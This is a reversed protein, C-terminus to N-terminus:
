DSARPQPRLETLDVGMGSLIAARSFGPGFPQPPTAGTIIFHLASVIREAARGDGYPNAASSMRRYEDADELLQLTNQVIADPETGVLRLTGSLVGEPRETQDRLVLVPLGLSPAEEQIGGSDTLVLTARELLHAFEIYGLPESLIIQDHAALLDQLQTRVRPNPHLPLVVRIDPHAACVDILAGAIGPLRDWNERRHATVVVLRHGGAVVAAVRPDQFDVPQRVAWLLADVGTNGSVFIRNSSVAERILNAEAPMTPAISLLAMRAILQRNIEEPFPGYADYTRLGAEVHIVPLGAFTGALAGALATTTDGHVLVGALRPLYGAPNYREILQELTPSLRSVIEVILENLSGTTRTLTYTFDPTIGAMALVETCMQPHQGSAIVIPDWIPDARMALIVPFMKIAEPRTGILVIPRLTNVPNFTAVTQAAM